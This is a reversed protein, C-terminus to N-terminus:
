SIGTAYTLFTRQRLVNPFPPLGITISRSDDKLSVVVCYLSRELM